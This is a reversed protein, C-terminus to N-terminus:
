KSLTYSTLEYKLTFGLSRVLHNAPKNDSATCLEITRIDPHHFHHTLASRLLREGYGCHRYDHHVAIYEITGEGHMPNTETYVYGTVSDNYDSVVFLSNNQNIRKLITEGDFYTQPFIQNHFAVFSEHLHDTISQSNLSASPTPQETRRLLYVHQTSDPLGHNFEIFTKAFLNKNNVFFSFSTISSFEGLLRDWLLQAMNLDHDMCFPGWVDAESFDEDIDFGLAAVIVGDQYAVYFSELAPSNSFEDQLADTIEFKDEGCYGIHSLDSSNQTSLFAALETLSTPKKITLTM